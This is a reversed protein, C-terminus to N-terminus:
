FILEILIYITELDLMNEMTKKKEMEAGIAVIFHCYHCFCNKMVRAFHHPFRGGNVFGEAFNIDLVKGEVLLCTEHLESGPGVITVHHTPSKIAPIVWFGDASPLCCSAARAVFLNDGPGDILISAFYFRTRPKPKIRDSQTSIM